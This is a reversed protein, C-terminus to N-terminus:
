SAVNFRKFFGETEMVKIRECVELFELMQKITHQMTKDNTFEKMRSMSRTIEDVERTVCVRYSRLKEINEKKADYSIGMVEIIKMVQDEVFRTTEEMKERMVINQAIAEEYASLESNVHLLQNKNKMEIGDKM